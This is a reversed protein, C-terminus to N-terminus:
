SFCRRPFRPLFRLRGYSWLRAQSSYPPMKIEVQIAVGYGLQEARQLPTDGQVDALRLDAGHLALELAAAANDEQAAYHLATLKDKDQVDVTAGRQLLYQVVELQGGIAAWHLATCGHSCTTDVPVGGDEGM